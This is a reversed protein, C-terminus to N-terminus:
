PWTDLSSLCETKPICMLCENCIQNAALCLLVRAPCLASQISSLCVSLFVCVHGRTTFLFMVTGIWWIRNTDQSVSLTLGITTELTSQKWVPSKRTKANCKLWVVTHNRFPKFCRYSKKLNLVFKYFIFLFFLFLPTPSYDTWSSHWVMKSSKHGLPCLQEKRNEEVESVRQWPLLHVRWNGLGQSSQGKWSGLLSLRWLIM